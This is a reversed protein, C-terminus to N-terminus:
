HSDTLKGSFSEIGILLIANSLFLVSDLLVENTAIPISSCELSLDTHNINLEREELNWSRQLVLSHREQKVSRRVNGDEGREEGEGFDMKSVRDTNCRQLSERRFLPLNQANRGRKWGGM